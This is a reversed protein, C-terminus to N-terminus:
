SDATEAEPILHGFIKKNLFAIIFIEPNGATTEAGSNGYAFLNIAFPECGFVITKPTM